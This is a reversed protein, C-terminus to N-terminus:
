HDRGLPLTVRVSTGRRSSDIAFRGGLQRVRERMGSIGVGLAPHRRAGPAASERLGRGRDRVLLTIRSDRRGLRILAQRSGSHRHINALSEQVIRFIATEVEVPLRGLRDPVRVDVKIGSRSAFGESYRRMAAALDAEELAPPHLLYALSRVERCCQQALALSDQIRRRNVADMAGEARAALSLNMALAALAQATSDHLERAIRRREQDQSRLLHGSLERLSEEAIRRETLDLLISEYHTTRGRGDRVARASVSAWFTSGDRRRFEMELGAVSGHQRLIRVFEARMVPDVYIETGIDRIAAIAEEPSDYGFMQAAAPNGAVVRGDPTTQVIGIAANQFIGRYKAEAARLAVLTKELDGHALANQVATSAARAIGEMTRRDEATFGVGGKKNYIGFAGLVEGRTGVLPTCMVSRIGFRRRLRALVRPDSAADNTVCTKRHKMVWGGIGEGPRWRQLFRVARRGLYFRDCTLVGNEVLGAGRAEIGGRDM